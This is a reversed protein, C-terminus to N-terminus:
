RNFPNILLRNTRIAHLEFWIEPTGLIEGDQEVVTRVLFDGVSDVYNDSLEFVWTGSWSRDIPEPGDGTSDVGSWTETWSGDDGLVLTTTQDRILIREDSDNLVFTQTNGTWTGVLGSSGEARLLPDWSFYTNDVYYEGVTISEITELNSDIPDANARYREALELHDPDFSFTGGREMAGDGHDESWGREATMEFDWTATRSQGLGFYRREWIDVVAEQRTLLILAFPSLLTHGDGDQIRLRLYMGPSVDVEIKWLGNEFRPTQGDLPMPSVEGDVVEVSLAERDTRDDGLFARFEANQTIPIIVEQDTDTIDAESSFDGSITIILSRITPPEGVLDLPMDSMDDVEEDLEEDLQEPVADELGWDRVEINQDLSDTSLEDASDGESDFTVEGALDDDGGNSVDTARNSTPDNGCAVSVNWLMVM